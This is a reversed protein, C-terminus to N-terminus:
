IEAQLDSLWLFGFVVGLQEARGMYHLQDRLEWIDLM